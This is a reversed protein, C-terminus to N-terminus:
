LCAYIAFDTFEKVSKKMKLSNDGKRDNNWLM